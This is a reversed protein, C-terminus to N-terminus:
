FKCMTILCYVPSRVEAYCDSEPQRGVESSLFVCCQSFFFIRRENFVFLGFYFKGNGLNEGHSPSFSCGFILTGIFLSCSVFRRASLSGLLILTVVQLLSFPVGGLLRCLLEFGTVRRM